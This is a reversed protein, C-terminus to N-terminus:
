ARGRKKTFHVMASGRNTNCALCTVKIVAGDKVEKQISISEATFREGCNTCCQEHFYDVIQKRQKGNM